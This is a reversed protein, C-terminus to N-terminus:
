YKKVDEGKKHLRNKCLDEIPFCLDYDNWDLNGDKIQFNKFFEENLYKQIAPDTFVIM